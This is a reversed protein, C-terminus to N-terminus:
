LADSLEKAKTLYWDKKALDQEASNGDKKGARHQYKYANCICFDYVAKAGFMIVMEDICEFKGDTYHSPHNVPDNVLPIDKQIREKIDATSNWKLQEFAKRVTDMSDDKSVCDSTKIRQEAGDCRIQATEINCYEVTLMDKPIFMHSIMYEECCTQEVFCGRSNEAGPAIVMLDADALKEIARGLLKVPNDDSEEYSDIIETDNGYMRKVINTIAQREMLIEEKSRGTMPQSIFIKM